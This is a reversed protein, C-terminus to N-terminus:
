LAMLILRIIHYGTTPIQVAGEKIVEGHLTEVRGALEQFRRSMGELRDDDIKDLRAFFDLSQQLKNIARRATGIQRRLHKYHNDTAFGRSATCEAREKTTLAEDLLHAARELEEDWEGLPVPCSLESAPSPRQVISPIDFFTLLRPHNWIASKKRRGTFTLLGKVYEDLGRRRAEIFETSAEATKM